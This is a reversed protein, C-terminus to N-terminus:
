TMYDTSNRVTGSAIRSRWWHATQELGHELGTEASWGTAENFKKPDAILARVESAEPRIRDSQAAVIPKNCGTITKAMDVMTEITVARGTGANYPTGGDLAEGLGAYIFASATDGVFTFDREPSLDGLRVEMCTPDLMQRLTSGIVARESQRPGYTNFPRLIIAPVEFSRSYAEAMMDAAIKTAAYPSQGHLPHQETIPRTQATGYVESTSTLIVRRPNHIRAAELVNVTGTVNVDVYSQVSQYSHPIAILAALHFITDQGACIRSVFAPDRIDGRVLEVVDRVDEALEDLWGHSDFANYLSLATVQAGEAVLREVLHSGIFGDAGTVLTRRDRYSTPASM